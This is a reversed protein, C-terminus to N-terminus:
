AANKFYADAYVNYWYLAQTLDYLKKDNSGDAATKLDMCLTAYDLAAYDLYADGYDNALMYRVHLNAPAIGDLTFCVLDGNKNAPVADVSEGNFTFSDKYEDRAGEVGRRM